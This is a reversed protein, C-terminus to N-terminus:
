TRLFPILARPSLYGRVMMKASPPSLNPLSLLLELVKPGEVSGTDIEALVGARIAQVLARGVGRDPTLFNIKLYGRSLRLEIAAHTSPIWLFLLFMLGKAAM